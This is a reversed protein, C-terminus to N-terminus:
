VHSCLCDHFVYSFSECVGHRVQPGFFRVMAKRAGMKLINVQCDRQTSLSLPDVQENVPRKTRIGPRKEVILSRSKIVVYLIIVLKLWGGIQSACGLLTNGADHLYFILIVNLQCDIVYRLDLFSPYRLEHRCRPCKPHCHWQSSFSMSTIPCWTCHCETSLSTCTCHCQTSLSMSNVIFSAGSTKVQCDIHTHTHTNVILTHTHTHTHTNHQRWSLWTMWNVTWSTGSTWYRWSLLSMWNSLWHRVQPGFLQVMWQRTAMKARKKQHM